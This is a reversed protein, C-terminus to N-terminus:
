PRLKSSDCQLKGWVRDVLYFSLALNLMLLTPFYVRRLTSNFPFSCLYLHKSFLPLLSSNLGIIWDVITVRFIPVRIWKTNIEYNFEWLVLKKLNRPPLLPAYSRMKAKRESRCLLPLISDNAKSCKNQLGFQSKDRGDPINIIFLITCSTLFRLPAKSPRIDLYIVFEILDSDKGKRTFWGWRDKSM